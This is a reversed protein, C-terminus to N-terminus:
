KEWASLRVLVVSLAECGRRALCRFKVTTKAM